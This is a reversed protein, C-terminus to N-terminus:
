ACPGSRKTDLNSVDTWRSMFAVLDDRSLFGREDVVKGFHESFDDNESLLKVLELFVAQNEPTLARFSTLIKTAEREKEMVQDM